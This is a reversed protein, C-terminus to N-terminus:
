EASSTSFAGPSSEVDDSILKGVDLQQINGTAVLSQASDAIKKSLSEAVKEIGSGTLDARLQASVGRSAVESSIDSRSSEYASQKNALSQQAAELTSITNDIDDSDFSLSSSVGVSSLTSVGDITTSFNRTSSGIDISSDLTVLVTQDEGLTTDSELANAEETEASSILSAADSALSDRRVPNTESKIERAKALLAEVTVQQKQTFSERTNISSVGSSLQLTASRQARAAADLSGASTRTDEASNVALRAAFTGASPQRATSRATIFSSTVSTINLGM